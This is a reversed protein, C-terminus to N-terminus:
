GKPAPTDAPGKRMLGSGIFLWLFLILPGALTLAAFLIARGTLGAAHAAQLILGCGPAMLVVASVVGATYRRLLLTALLHPVFVNALMVLASGALLPDAASIGAMKVPILALGALTVIVLGIRLRTLPLRLGRGTVVDALRPAFLYEEGNHILLLGLFLWFWLIDM